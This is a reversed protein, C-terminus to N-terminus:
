KSVFNQILGAGHRLTLTNKLKWDNGSTKQDMVYLCGHPLDLTFTKGVQKSKYYYRYHLEFKKGLRIGIVMKREADGHFSIYCKSTDYYKNAEAYLQKARPIFEPLKERVKALQPLSSFPIITGKKNDFDAVQYYDAFCLNHRAHKNVVRGKSYTKTDYELSEQERYLANPHIGMKACGDYVVLLYAYSNPDSSFEPIQDIGCSVRLDIIEANAGVKRFNEYAVVLEQPTFGSINRGMSIKEMGVHNEVTESFTITFTQTPNLVTKKKLIIKKPGEKEEEGKVEEKGEQKSMGPTNEFDNSFSVERVKSLM